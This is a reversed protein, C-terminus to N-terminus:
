GSEAVRAFTAVEIDLYRRALRSYLLRALWAMPGSWDLGVRITAGGPTGTVDHVGTTRIGPAVSVWTFSEGPRWDTIVWSAKPLRPQRVVYTADVAPRQMPGGTPEVADFTPLMRPWATVDSFVQWAQAPTASTNATAELM